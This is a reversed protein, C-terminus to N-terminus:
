CQEVNGLGNRGVGLLRFLLEGHRELGDDEPREALSEYRGAAEQEAARHGLNRVQLSQVPDKLPRTLQQKDGVMKHTYTGLATEYSSPSSIYVNAYV